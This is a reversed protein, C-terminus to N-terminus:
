AGLECIVYIQANVPDSTNSEWKSTYIVFICRGIACLAIGEGVWTPRSKGLLVVCAYNLSAVLRIQLLGKEKLLWPICNFIIARLTM